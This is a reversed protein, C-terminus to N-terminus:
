ARLTSSDIERSATCDCADLSVISGNACNLCVCFSPQACKAGSSAIVVARCRLQHSVCADTRTLLHEVDATARAHHRHRRSPKARTDGAEVERRLQELAGALIGLDGVDVDLPVFAIGLLQREAVGREVDHDTLVAM